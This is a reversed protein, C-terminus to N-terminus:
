RAASCRARRRARGCSTSLGRRRWSWARTAACVAGPVLARRLRRRGAALRGDLMPGHLAAVGCQCTLWSSSRRTTATASSCSRRRAVAAPRALLPLLQVSGYGGRLAILAAVSPDAWARMFDRPAPTPRGPRSRAASSSPRPTSRSSGSGGCSPWAASSSTARHLRQGARRRRHSRGPRLAARSRIM